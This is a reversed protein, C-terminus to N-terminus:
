SVQGEPDEVYYWSDDGDFFEKSLNKCEKYSWHKLDFDPFSPLDNSPDNHKKMRNIADKKTRFVGLMIITGTGDINKQLHFLCWAGNKINM